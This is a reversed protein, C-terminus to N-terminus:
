APICCFTASNTRTKIQLLVVAEMRADRTQFVVAVQKFGCADKRVMVERESAKIVTDALLRVVVRVDAVDGWRRPMECDNVCDELVM